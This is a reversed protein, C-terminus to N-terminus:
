FNKLIDIENFINKMIKLYKQNQYFNHKLAFHSPCIWATDSYPEDYPFKPREGTKFIEIKKHTYDQWLNSGPILRLKSAYIWFGDKSQKRIFDLNIQMDKEKEIPSGFIFTFAAGISHEKLLLGIDRAKSIYGSINETRKYYRLVKPVINEIGVTLWPVKAKRLLALTDTDLNDLRGSTPFMCDFKEKALATFLKHVRKKNCFINDDNLSVHRPGYLNIIHEIQKITHGESQFRYGNGSACYICNFMCGRSTVIDFGDPKGAYVFNEFDVLPLADLNPMLQRDPNNMIKGNKDKFSIGPISNTKGGKSLASVLDLLTLEGEGRVAYDVEPILNLVETPLFTTLFGGIIVTVNPNRGKYAAVFEKLFSIGETWCGMALIDPNTKETEKILRNLIVNKNVSNIEEYHWKEYVFLNCDICLAEFGHSELFKSLYAISMNPSVKQKTPYPLYLAWMLTIKPKNLAPKAKESTVLVPKFESNGRIEPYERWVGECINDYKCERCQPFKSKIQKRVINWDQTGSDLQKLERESSDLFHLESVYSEYGVMLCFPIAEFDIHKQANNKANFEQIYSISKYVYPMIASYHPVVADFYKRANGNAHPFAFNMGKAGLRVLLKAIEPLHKYNFNTIVVKGYINTIGLKKLNRIGTITQNFSGKARTISDHVRSNPGHLAITYSINFPVFKAAYKKYFFSRGNTQMYINFGLKKAYELLFLIDKRITPEGGTFVIEDFGRSRSDNMEIIYDQTSRNDSKGLERCHERQDAIVCHVCNNNCDYGLKIDTYKM